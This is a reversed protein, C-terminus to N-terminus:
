SFSYVMKAAIIIVKDGSNLLISVKFYDGEDDDVNLTFIYCGPGWPEKRNVEVYAVNEFKLLAAYQHTDDMIIPMEVTGEDYDSIIKSIKADHFNVNQIKDIEKKSFIIVM